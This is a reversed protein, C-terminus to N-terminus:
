FAFSKKLFILFLYSAMIELLFNFKSPFTQLMLFNEKEEFTSPPLNGRSRFQCASIASVRNMLLQGSAERKRKIVFCARIIRLWCLSGAALGDLSRPIRDRDFLFCVANV